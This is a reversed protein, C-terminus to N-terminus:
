KGFYQQPLKYFCTSPYLTYFRGKRRLGQLLLEELKYLNWYPIRLLSCRNQLCWKLKIKDRLRQKIYEQVKRKKPRFHHKGDYEICLDYEPLYFDFRLPKQYECGPFSVETYYQICRSRLFRCIRAEGPSRRM